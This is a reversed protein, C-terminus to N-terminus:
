KDGNIGLLGVRGFIRDTELEKAMRGKMEDVDWHAAVWRGHLFKAEDSAAWVAFHGPLDEHDWDYSDDPVGHSASMKTWIGGPHISLIQMKRPDTDQAIRQMLLTGSNKTVGYAPFVATESYHNHIGTTSLNIFYRPRDGEQKYLRSAFDFLPRINAEFAHWVTELSSNLMPGFDGVVAANMVLVDIFIGDERFKAWLKDTASLDVIDCSVAEIKTNAGDIVEGSLTTAAEQAKDDQRGLLVVRDAEAHVFARAISFGIGSSGGAVVVTRGKQSLEPRRPSIAPYPKKHYTGILPTSVTITSLPPM